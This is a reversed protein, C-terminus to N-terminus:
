HRAVVADIRDIVVALVREVDRERQRPEDDAVLPLLLRREEEAGLPRGHAEDHSEEVIHAIEPPRDIARRKAVARLEGADMDRSARAEELLVQRGYAKRAPPRDRALDHM